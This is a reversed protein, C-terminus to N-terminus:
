SIDSSRTFRQTHRGVPHTRVRGSPDVDVEIALGYVETLLDTTM